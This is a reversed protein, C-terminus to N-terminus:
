QANEITQQQPSDLKNLHAMFFRFLHTSLFSLSLQLSQAAINCIVEEFKRDSLQDILQDCQM